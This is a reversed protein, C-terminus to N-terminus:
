KLEPNGKLPIPDSRNGESSIRTYPGQKVPNPDRLNGPMVRIQEGPKDPNSYRVGGGRRTPSATWSQPILREIEQTSAGRLSVPNTLSRSVSTVVTDAGGVMERALLREVAGLGARGTASLGGGLVEGPGMSPYIADPYAPNIAPPNYLEYVFSGIGVVVPVIIPILVPFEGDPDIYKYPNNNGYTYRNFSHVNSETFEKPDVGMFRGIVPDYYRAGFYSLGTEEDQPQGTYWRINNAANPQKQLRDGYPQYTEKWLYYNGTADSAAVPSGLADFHYYYITEVAVAVHTIILSFLFLCVSLWRQKKKASMTALIHAM